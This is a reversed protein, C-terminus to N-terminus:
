KALSAAYEILYIKPALWIQLAISASSLGKIAFVLGALFAAAMWGIFFPISGANETRLRKGEAEMDNGNNSYYLIDGRLYERLQAAPKRIKVICVALLCLTISFTLASSVAKWILLQQIVEPLEARLFSTGAEVGAVTKNLLAALAQQLQENM